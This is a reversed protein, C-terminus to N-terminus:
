LGNCVRVDERLNYYDLIFKNLIENNEKQLINLLEKQEEQTYNVMDPCINSNVMKCSTLLMTLIILMMVKSNEKLRRM